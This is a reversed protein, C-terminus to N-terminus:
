PVTASWLSADGSDFGDSFVVTGATARLVLTRDRYDGIEFRGVAVVDGAPASLITGAQSDWGQGLEDPAPHLRWHSGDFSQIM